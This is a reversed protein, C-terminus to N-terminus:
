SSPADLLDRYRQVLTLSMPECNVKQSMQDVVVEVRRNLHRNKASLASNGPVKKWRAKDSGLGMKKWCIKTQLASGPYKSKVLDILKKQISQARKLSFEGANPAESDPDAFGFVFVVVGVGPLPPNIRTDIENLIWQLAINHMRVVDPDPSFYQKWDFGSLRIVSAGLTSRREILTRTSWPAEFEALRELEHELERELEWESELWNAMRYSLM